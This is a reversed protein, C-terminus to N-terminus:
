ESNWAHRISSVCAIEDPAFYFFRESLDCSNAEVSYVFRMPFNDEVRKFDNWKVMNINKKQMLHYEKRSTAAHKVEMMM